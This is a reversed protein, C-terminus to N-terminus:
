REEEQRNSDVEDLLYAIGQWLVFHDTANAIEVTLDRADVPSPLDLRLEADLESPDAERRALVREGRLVQVLVGGTGGRATSGVDVARVAVATVSGRATPPAALSADDGPYSWLGGECAREPDLVLEYTHRGGVPATGDSSAFFVRDPAHCSRGDGFRFVEECAVGHVPLPLGDEAVRIPSCRTGLPSRDLTVADALAALDPTEMSAAGGRAETATRRPRALRLPRRPFSVSPRQERYGGDVLAHAALLEIRDPRTSLLQALIRSFRRAGEADMHDVNQFQSPTVPLGTLDVWEAGHAAVLLPVAEELDPPVVDGAGEPLLPSMPPRVFALRTGHSRALEAIEPLFGDAPPALEGPDFAVEQRGSFVPIVRQHLRNDVRDDAFTRSLAAGITRADTPEGWTSSVLTDRFRRVALDRAHTRNGRARELWWWRHGLKADVVPEDPGLQVALNVHSAESRPTLALLSQLDSLVIVLAPRHGAAYVRNELIAYWHAAMSNPVSLKVVDAVPLGLGRALQQESLDTNSLSNGLIVVKPERDLAQDMAAVVDDGVVQGNLVRGANQEQRADDFTRVRELAGLGSWAVALPGIVALLAALPTM